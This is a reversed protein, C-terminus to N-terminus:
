LTELVGGAMELHRFLYAKAQPTESFSTFGSGECQEPLVQGPM